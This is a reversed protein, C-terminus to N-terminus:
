SASKIAHYDNGKLELGLMKNVVELPCFNLRKNNYFPYGKKVMEQKGERIIRSAVSKTMGTQEIIEDKTIINM